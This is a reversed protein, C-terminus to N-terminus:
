AVIRFRSEVPLTVTAMAGDGLKGQLSIKGKHAEVIAKAVPLGLGTGRTYKEAIIGRYFREFALEAEEDSLGIGHDRFSIVVDDDSRLLQVVVKGGPKSYRLANDMLIAFVQRLRGSDGLVVARAGKFDQEISIERQEAKVSFDNCVAEIISAISVSRMKLRPEGAGARAIFLLDDVLRTTQDIQDIIRQFSERYDAKTKNAGRLAIESEGRIVTLPTRFEHSIDGLLKRRNVDIDALKASSNKLARRLENVTAETAKLRINDDQLRTRHDSLSLAMTNFAEGLRSFEQERLEPIRHALNGDTFARAGEHLANVSRTISRSLLYMVLLTIIVLAYMFIPLLDTIHHALAIADQDVRRAERKQENIAAIILSSFYAAVGTGRLKNLEDSADDARGEVLAQNILASAGIIEEVVREIEVIPEPDKGEGAKQDFAVGGAFGERVRSVAERLTTSRSQWDTVDSADGGMVSDELASLQQYTLKSVELYGQLVNNAMTIRQADYEYSRVSDFFYWALALTILLLTAFVVYLKDNFQKTFRPM